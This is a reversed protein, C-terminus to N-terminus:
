PGYGAYVMELVPANPEDRTRIETGWQRNVNLTITQLMMVIERKATDDLPKGLYRERVREVFTGCIMGAVFEDREPPPESGDPRHRLVYVSRQHFQLYLEIM